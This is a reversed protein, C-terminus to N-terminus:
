IVLWVYFWIYWKEFIEFLVLVYVYLIFKKVFNLKFDVFVFDIVRVIKNMSMCCSYKRDWGSFYLKLVCRINKM